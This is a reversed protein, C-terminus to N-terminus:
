MCFLTMCIYNSQLRSKVFHTPFLHRQQLRLLVQLISFYFQSSLGYGHKPHTKERVRPEVKSIFILWILWHNSNQNPNKPYDLLIEIVYISLIILAIVIISVFPCFMILISLLIKDDQVQKWPQQRVMTWPVLQTIWWPLRQTLWSPLRLTLWWLLMLWWPLM